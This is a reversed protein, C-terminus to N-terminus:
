EVLSFQNPDVNVCKLTWEGRNYELVTIYANNLTPIDENSFMYHLEWQMCSHGVVLADGNNDTSMAIHGLATRMRSAVSYKSEAHIPSVFSSNSITGIYTEESFDPYISLVDSISMGEVDGWDIDNLKAYTKAQKQLTKSQNKSLIIQATDKTRTLESTYIQSFEIGSLAEGAEEAQAQGLQTLMADTGSGALLEAVNAETEGHRVFYITVEKENKFLLYDKNEALLSLGYSLAQNKLHKDNTCAFYQYNSIGYDSLIFDESSYDVPEIVTNALLVRSTYQRIGWYLCSGTTSQADDYQVLITPRNDNESLDARTSTHVYSYDFSSKLDSDLETCIDLVSCNLKYPNQPVVIFKFFPNGGSFLFLILLLVVWCRSKGKKGIRDKFEVFALAIIFPILMVWTLRGYELFSPFIRKYTFHAFFPNLVIVIVFVPIIIIWRKSHNNKLLFIVALFCVAYLM